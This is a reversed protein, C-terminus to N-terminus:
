KVKPFSTSLRSISMAIYKFINIQNLNKYSKSIETIKKFEYPPIISTFHKFCSVKKLESQQKNKEHTNQMRKATM